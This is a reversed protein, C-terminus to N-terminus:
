RIRSTILATSARAIASSSAPLRAAPSSSRSSSASRVLSPLASAARTGIARESQSSLECGPATASKAHLTWARALRASREPLRAKASGGRSSLVVPQGLRM